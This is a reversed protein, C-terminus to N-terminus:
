ARPRFASGILKASSRVAGTFALFPGFDRVALMSTMFLGPVSTQMHEDLVPLGNDTELRSLLNGRAVLPVRALDPKYGTALVIRDVEVVARGAAGDITVALADGSEACGGIQTNPWLRVRPQRVRPELWPELKLRGEAWLRRAVDDKEAQSLRRYWDPDEVFHDVLPDVWTWDSPQFAPSDHRHSIHVAAAGAECMLAAWEFASQRGGVILYRKDRADTFDIADCSHQVRDPPLARAIHDPVHKFHAFGLALVVNDADIAGGGDLAARFRREVTGSELRDVFVPRPDIQKRAQFWSAYELYLERSLPMVDAPALGRTRLFAEITDVAQPDLHWECDSRLYMGRPMHTHWFQMPQGVVVHEIELHAAHAAMALGFPGAGIILLDTNV